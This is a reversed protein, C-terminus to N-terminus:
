LVFCNEFLKTILIFFLEGLLIKELTTVMFQLSSFKKLLSFIRRSRSANKQMRQPKWPNKSSCSPSQPVRWHYAQPTNYAAAQIERSASNRWIRLSDGILLQTADTVLFWLCLLLSLM